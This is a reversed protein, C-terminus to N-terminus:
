CGRVVVGIGVVVVVVDPPPAEGQRMHVVVLVAAAATRGGVWLRGGVALLAAVEQHPATGGVDHTDVATHGLAVMVIHHVAVADIRVGAGPTGAALTGVAAAAVVVWPAALVVVVTDDFGPTHALHHAVALLVVQLM